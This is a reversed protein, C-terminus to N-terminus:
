LEVFCEDKERNLNKKSLELLEITIHFMLEHLVFLKFSCFLLVVLSESSIVPKTQRGQRCLLCQRTLRPFRETNAKWWNVPIVDLPAPNDGLVNKVETEASNSKKIFYQDGLLLVMATAAAFCISLVSRLLIRKYLFQMTVIFYYDPIVLIFYVTCSTCTVNIVKMREDLLALVKSKFEVVRSSYGKKRFQLASTYGRTTYFNIYTLELSIICTVYM